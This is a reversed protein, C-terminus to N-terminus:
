EALLKSIAEELEKGELDIAVVDGAQQDPLHHATARHELTCGDPCGLGRTM